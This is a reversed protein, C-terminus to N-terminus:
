SVRTVLLLYANPTSELFKKFIEIVKKHNKQHNFRGIHGVVLKDKIRLQNRIIQRSETDYKFNATDIGNYVIDVNGKEYDSGYLWKAAEIGCAFKKFKYFGCLYRCIKHYIIHPGCTNHSHIIVNRVNAQRCAELNVLVDSSHYTHIHVTNFVNRNAIYWEKLAKCKNRMFSLPNTNNITPLYYIKGGLTYIEDDYDGKDHSYCLFSFQVKSRDINRYVNMIFTEQGARNMCSVIHLVRIM